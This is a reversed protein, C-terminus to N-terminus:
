GVLTGRGGAAGCLGGRGMCGWPAGREGCLGLSVGRVGNCGWLFGGWRLFELDDWGNHLLGEEYRELGLGRLWEGVNSESVGAGRGAQCLAQLLTPPLPSM